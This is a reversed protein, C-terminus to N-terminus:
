EHIRWCVQLTELALQTEKADAQQLAFAEVARVRHAFLGSLWAAASEDTAAGAKAERM